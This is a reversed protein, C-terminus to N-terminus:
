GLCEKNYSVIGSIASIGASLVASVKISTPIVITILRTDKESEGGFINEMEETSLEEFSEGIFKLSKDNEM